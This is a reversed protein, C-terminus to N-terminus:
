SAAETGTRTNRSGQDTEQWPCFGPLQGRMLKRRKQRNEAAKAEEEAQKARASANSAKEQAAAMTAEAVALAKARADQEAEVAAKKAQQQVLM